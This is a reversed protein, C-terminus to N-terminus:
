SWAAGVRRFVWSEVDHGDSGMNIDVSTYLKFGQSRLAALIQGLMVRSYVAEHGDAWFPNGNLKFELSNHYTIEHNIGSKWQSQIAGKVIPIIYAPADILRIRDTRNFSMAFMEIQGIDAVMASEFFLSDKDHQKKSVDTAQILNWGSQAMGKLVHTILRRSAVAEPGQGYWPNGLIKFEHAGCYNSERQIKGWGTTIAQRIVPVLEPPTGVLRIKDSENLTLCCVRFAQPNVQVPFPSTTYMPPDYKVSM